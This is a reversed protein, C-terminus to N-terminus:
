SLTATLSMSSSALANINKLLTANEFLIIREASIASLKIHRLTRPHLGPRRWSVVRAGKPAWQEDEVCARDDARM